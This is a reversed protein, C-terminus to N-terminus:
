SYTRMTTIWSRKSSIFASASAMATKAEQGTQKISDTLSSRCKRRPYRRVGTKSPSLSGTGKRITSGKEAFKIANDILNYVVQTISDKDGRVKIPEEPLEAEVDLGKADIKGGLSLLSLRLVESIDFCGGKLAEPSTSQIRSMDLMNRVLRSLRKTESSIVELYKRENEPPITGDLIGDSFGSIVTMPTKLEHSVNGIFDRRLKESRQLSDAMTNFAETLQGIEDERDENEVRMSFDGRAFRRAALAMANIPEAQKKTTIFSIVFTLMLVIASIFLFVGAFQRWIQVMDNATSSLFMYGIAKGDFSRLLPVGMVYRIEGYVGGLDSNRTYGTGANLPLLVDAPIVKGLHPCIVQRDSCSIVVGDANAIMIDFGTTNSITNLAVRFDLNTLDYGLGFYNIFEVVDDATSSMEKQKEGIVLRYSWTFFLSGLILFSIFVIGATMCFNKIYISKKMFREVRIQVWCGLRDEADM